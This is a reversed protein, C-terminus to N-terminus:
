LKIIPKAPNNIEKKGYKRFLLSKIIIKKGKKRKPSEVPIIQGVVDEFIKNILGLILALEDPNFPAIKKPKPAIAEDLVPTRM